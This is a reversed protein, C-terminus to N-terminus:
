QQYWHYATTNQDMARVSMQYQFPGLLLHLKKRSTEQSFKHRLLTLLNSSSLNTKATTGASIVFNHVKTIITPTVYQYSASSSCLQIM